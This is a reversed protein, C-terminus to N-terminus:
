SRRQLVYDPAFEMAERADCVDFSDLQVKADTALQEAMEAVEEITGETMVLELIEKRDVRKFDGDKLVMDILRRRDPRLRPLLLILPLTLKGEKLDSLVPKGLEGETATFDLLDDVLQFCTGLALGYRQLREDADPKAPNMLSPISCAASFLFATKRRTIHFYEDATINSSRLKQQALLEGETMRLTADCLRRIVELNDHDLAMKMAKTYLWDGLLVTLSNGWLENVTTRGRRLSAHDIIDDHILTATHILEVVASYTVEENSDHGLMRASLLLMAPRLRKGGSSFLYEGANEIFPVDSRIQQVFLEEAEVLKDAILALFRAASPPIESEPRTVGPSNPNLM